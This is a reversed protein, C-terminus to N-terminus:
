WYPYKIPTFQEGVYRSWWSAMHLGKTERFPGKNSRIWLHRGWGFRSLSPHTFQNSNLRSTVDDTSSVGDEIHTGWKLLPYTLKRNLVLMEMRTFMTTSEGIAEMVSQMLHYAPLLVFLRLM